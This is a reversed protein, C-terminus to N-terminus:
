QVLGVVSSHLTCGSSAFNYQMVGLSCPYSVTVSAQKSSATSLATQCAADTSCATGNVSVAVTLSGTILNNAAANIASVTTTYPTTLGRSLTLQSVGAYAANSVSLYNGLAIAFIFGGLVVLLFVPVVLAFEIAAAGSIDTAARGPRKRFLSSTPM